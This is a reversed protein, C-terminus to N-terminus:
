KIAAKFITPAGDKGPTRTVLKKKVLRSLRDCVSSSIWAPAWSPFDKAIKHAIALSTSPGRSALEDFVIDTFATSM